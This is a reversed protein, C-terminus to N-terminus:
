DMCVPNVSRSKPRWGGCYKGYRAGYKRIINRTTPAPATAETRRRSIWQATFSNINWLPQRARPQRRFLEHFARILYPSSCSQCRKTRLFVSGVLCITRVPKTANEFLDEQVSQTLATALLTNQTIFCGREAEGLYFTFFIVYLTILSKVTIYLVHLFLSM